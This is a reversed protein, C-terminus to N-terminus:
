YGPWGDVETTFIFDKECNRLKVTYFDGRSKRKNLFNHRESRNRFVDWMEKASAADRTQALINNSLSFGVVACPAKNAPTCKDYTTQRTPIFYIEQSLLLRLEM